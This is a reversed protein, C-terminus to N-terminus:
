FDWRGNRLYNNKFRPINKGAKLLYYFLMKRTDKLDLPFGWEGMTQAYKIIYSTEEEKLAM